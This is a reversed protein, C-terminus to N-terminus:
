PVLLWALAASQVDPDRAGGLHDLGPHERIRVREAARPAVDALADRFAHANAPPIHRDAAGLEFTIAPGRRFADLHTMPDLRECLWRGYATPEGQALPTSTGDLGAMGPRSWDPTAVMAAVRAVRPDIGALAVAVDGGMSVGGAVVSPELDFTELAWDVVRFADLTTHGLIPWVERRFAELARAMRDSSSEASREGHQWADLSVATFGAAALRLLYDSMAEKRGGLFHLWLALQHRDTASAPTAYLVPIDDVFTTRLGDTGRETPTTM